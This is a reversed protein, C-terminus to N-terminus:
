FRWRFTQSTRKSVVKTKRKSFSLTFTTEAMETEPHKGKGPCLHYVEFMVM